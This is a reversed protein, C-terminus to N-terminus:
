AASSHTELGAARHRAAPRALIPKENACALDGIGSESLLTTLFRLGNVGCAEASTGIWQFVGASLQYLHRNGSKKAKRREVARLLADRQQNNAGYCRVDVHAPMDRGEVKPLQRREIFEFGGLGSAKSTQCTISGVNVETGDAVLHILRTEPLNARGIHELFLLSHKDTGTAVSYATVVCHNFQIQRAAFSSHLEQQKTSPNTRLYM